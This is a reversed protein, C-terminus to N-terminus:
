IESFVLNQSRQDLKAVDEIEFRNGDADAIVVRRGPLKRINRRDVVEFAAYGRDTMVKWQGVGMKEKVSDVRQIKAVYYMRALAADLASRSDKDLNHPNAVLAVEKNKESLFSVYDAKGSLPFVKRVRVSTREEGDVSVCLKQFADERVRVRHPEVVSDALPGQEQNDDVSQTDNSKEEEKKDRAM